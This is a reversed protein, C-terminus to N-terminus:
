DPDHLVNNIGGNYEIVSGTLFKNDQDTLSKVLLAVGEPTGISKSPHFQELESIKSDDNNLGEKLMKTLIAAPAIANVSIGTQSLEIALSRTISELAAKSASYCTFNAKTLKTHISSINIVHGSASSLEDIFGQVLFFPSVTNTYLSQNWDELKIQQISKLVQVAANNVLIFKSLKKPVKEKIKFIIEERYTNDKSFKYLDTDIHTFNVKQTLPPSKKDLGIVMYNSKLFSNVISNGIDGSSGTILILKIM